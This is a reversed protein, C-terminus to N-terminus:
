LWKFGRAMILLLAAALGAYLGMAWVKMSAIQQGIGALGDKLQDKLEDIKNELQDKLGDVKNELRDLRDNTRRLEVKVDTVDTQIHKVDSELRALREGGEKENMDRVRGSITVSDLERKVVCTANM